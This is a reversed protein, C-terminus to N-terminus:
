EYCRQTKLDEEANSGGAHVPPEERPHWKEVLVRPECAIQGLPHPAAAAGRMWCCGPPSLCERQLHWQAAEKKQTDVDFRITPDDEGGSPEAWTQAHMSFIRRQGGAPEFVKVLPFCKKIKAGRSKLVLSFTQQFTSDGVGISRRQAWRARLVDTQYDPPM